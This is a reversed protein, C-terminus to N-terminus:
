EKAPAPHHLTVGHRAYEDLEVRLRVGVTHVIGAFPLLVAVTVVTVLVARSRRVVWVLAALAAASLAGVLVLWPSLDALRDARTPFAVSSPGAARVGRIVEAHESMAMTVLLAGAILSGVSLAFLAYAVQRGLPKM